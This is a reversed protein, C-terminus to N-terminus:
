KANRVVLVRMSYVEDKKKSSVNGREFDFYKRDKGKEVGTWYWYGSLSVQDVIHIQHRNQFQVTKDKDYLSLLEQDAPLRWDSYNGGRFNNV